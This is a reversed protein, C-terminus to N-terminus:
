CLRENVNFLRLDRLKDAMNWNLIDMHLLNHKSPLCNARHYFM